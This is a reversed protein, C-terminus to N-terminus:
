DTNLEAVVQEIDVKAASIRQRCLNILESARKVQTALQDVNVSEAELQRLIGELESLAEAYDPENSSEKVM